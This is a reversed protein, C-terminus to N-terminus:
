KEINKIWCDIQSSEIVKHYGRGYCVLSLAAGQISPTRSTLLLHMSSWRTKNSGEQLFLRMRRRKEVKMTKRRLLLWFSAPKTKPLFFSKAEMEQKKQNVEQVEKAELFTRVWSWQSDYGLKFYLRHAM